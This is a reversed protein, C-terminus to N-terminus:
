IKPIKMRPKPKTRLEFVPKPTEGIIETGKAQECILLKDNPLHVLM